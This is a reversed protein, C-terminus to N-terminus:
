YGGDAPAPAGPPFGPRRRRPEHSPRRWGSRGAASPAAPPQAWPAAAPATPSSGNGCFSIIRDSQIKAYGRAMRAIILSHKLSTVGHADMSDATFQDAGRRETQQGRQETNLGRQRQRDDIGAGGAAQRHFVAGARRHFKVPHGVQRGIADKGPGRGKICQGQGVGIAQIDFRPRGHRRRQRGIGRLFLDSRGSRPRDAPIAAQAPVVQIGAEPQEARGAMRQVADGALPLRRQDAQRHGIQLLVAPLIVHRHVDFVFCRAAARGLFFRDIALDELDPALCVRFRGRTGFEDGDAQQPVALDPLGDPEALFVAPFIM